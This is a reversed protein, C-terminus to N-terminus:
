SVRQKPMRDKCCWSLDALEIDGTYKRLGSSFGTICPKTFRTRVGCMRVAYGSVIRRQDGGHTNYALVAYEQVFPEDRFNCWGLQRLLIDQNVILVHVKVCGSLGRKEVSAYSAM